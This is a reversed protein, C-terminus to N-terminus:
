LEDYSLSCLILRAGCFDAEATSFYVACPFGVSRDTRKAFATDSLNGARKHRLTYKGM